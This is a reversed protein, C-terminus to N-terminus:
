EGQFSWVFLDAELSDAVEAALTGVRLHARALRIANAAMLASYKQSGSLHPVLHQRLHLAAEALLRDAAAQDDSPMRRAVVAEATLGDAPAHGAPGLGAPSDSPSDALYHRVVPAVISAAMAGTIRLELAEAEGMVAREGQQAAIIAWRLHAYRQWFPLESEWKAMDLGALRLATLLDNLEGLGAVPRSGGFRWCPATLWGIDAMPDGWASFEWDLVASLAVPQDPIVASAAGVGRAASAQSAASPGGELMLNGLRFDHHCLSAARKAGAARRRAAIQEGEGLVAEAAYRLYPRPGAVRALSKRLFELSAMVGCDPRPGLVDALRSATQASADPHHLLALERGLAQTLTTAASRLDPADGGLRAILRRPDAEGARWEFFSVPGEPSDVLAIPRPVTLGLGHAQQFIRFEAARDHTGPIAASQGRRMVWRQTPQSQDAPSQGAKAAATACVMEGADSALGPQVDGDAPGLELLFNQNIAGGSLRRSALVQLPALAQQRCAETVLPQFDAVSM